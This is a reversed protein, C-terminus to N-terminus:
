RPLLGVWVGVFVCVCVWVPGIVICLVASESICLTVLKYRWNDGGGGDDTAGTYGALGPKGPFIAM